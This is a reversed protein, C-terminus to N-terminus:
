IALYRKFYGTNVEYCINLGQVNAHGSVRSSLAAYKKILINKCHYVSNAQTAPEEGGGALLSRPLSKGGALLSRPLSEGGGVGM